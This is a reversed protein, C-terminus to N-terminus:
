FIMLILLIIISLFIKVTGILGTKKMNNITFDKSINGLCLAYSKIESDKAIFQYINKTNVFLFRNSGNYHLSLVFRKGSQTFNIRYKAETTLTTDDLGQTPGEGLILINKNKNDIHVSSSVDVEFIIVNKGM